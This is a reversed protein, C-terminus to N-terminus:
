GRLTLLGSSCIFLNLTLSAFILHSHRRSFDFGQVSFVDGGIRGNGCLSPSLATEQEGSVDVPVCDSRISRLKHFGTRLVDAAQASAAAKINCSQESGGKLGTGM